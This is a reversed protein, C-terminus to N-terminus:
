FKMKILCCNLHSKAEIRSHWWTHFCIFITARRKGNVGYEPIYYSIPDLLNLDGREDLMHILMATVM